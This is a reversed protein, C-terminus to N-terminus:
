PTAVVAPRRTRAGLRERVAFERPLRRVIVEAAQHICQKSVGHRQAMESLPRDDHIGLAYALASGAASHERLTAGIQRLAEGALHWSARRAEREIISAVDDHLASDVGADHLQDSITPERGPDIEAAPRERVAHELANESKFNVERKV